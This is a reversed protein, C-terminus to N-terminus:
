SQQPQPQPQMYLLEVETAVIVRHSGRPTEPSSPAQCAPLKVSLERSLTGPVSPFLGGGILSDLENVPFYVAIPSLIRGQQLRQKLWTKAMDLTSEM